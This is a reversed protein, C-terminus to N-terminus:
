AFVKTKMWGIFNLKLQEAKKEEKKPAALKAVIAIRYSMVQKKVSATLDNIFRCIDGFELCGQRAEFEQKDTIKWKAM